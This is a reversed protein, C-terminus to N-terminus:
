RYGKEHCNLNKGVLGGNAAQVQCIRPVESQFNQQWPSCLTCSRISALQNSQSCDRLITVRALFNLSALSLLFCSASPFSLLLRREGTEREAMESEGTRGLKSEVAQLPVARLRDKNHCFERIKHNGIMLGSKYLYYCPKYHYKAYIGSTINWFQRLNWEGLPEHFQTYCNRFIM